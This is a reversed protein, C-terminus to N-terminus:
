PRARLQRRDPTGSKGDSRGRHTMLMFNDAIDIGLQQGEDKNM